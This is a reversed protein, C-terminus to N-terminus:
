GTLFSRAIGLRTVGRRQQASEELQQIPTLLHLLCRAEDGLIHAQAMRDMRQEISERTGGHTLIGIEMRQLHDLGADALIPLPVALRFAFVDEDRDRAEQRRVRRRLPGLQLRRLDCEAKM